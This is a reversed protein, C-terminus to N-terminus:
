LGIELSTGQSVRIQEHGLGVGVGVGVAIGVAVGSGTAVGVGFAHLIDGCNHHDDRDNIGLAFHKDSIRLKRPEVSGVTQRGHQDIVRRAHRGALQQRLPTRSKICICSTQYRLGNGANSNIFAVQIEGRRRKKGWSFAIRDYLM